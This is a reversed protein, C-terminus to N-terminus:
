PVPVRTLVPLRGDRTVEFLLGSREENSGGEAFVSRYTRWFQEDPNMLLLYDYGDLQRAFEEPSYPCTWLDRDNYKSGLTWCWANTMRPGLEYATLHFGFGNTAQWVIYTRAQPPLLGDVRAVVRQINDRFAATSAAVPDERPAAQVVAWAISFVLIMAGTVSRLRSGSAAQGLAAVIALAWALFWTGAYRGFAVVHAGEYAGFGNLYVYLLVVLYGACGVALMGHVIAHTPKAQPPQLFFTLVSLGLLLPFWQLASSPRLRDGPNSWAGSESIVGNGNRGVPALQLARGFNRVTLDHRRTRLSPMVLTRFGEATFKVDFTRNFELAAVRMSWSQHATLPAIVLLCPIAWALASRRRNDAEGQFRRVLGRRLADIVFVGAACMAPVLGIPKVLPLCFLVPVLAMRNRGGPDNGIAVAALAAGFLGGLLHDVEVTAYGLGLIAMMLLGLALVLVYMPACALRTWRALAIAISILALAQAFYTRGESFTSSVVFYQFLAAGPPYDKLIVGTTPGPLLGTRSISKSVRGWHSFEDWTGYAADRLGLWALAALGVFVVLSILIAARDDPPSARLKWVAITGLALGCVYLALTAPALWGGLAAAYLVTVVSACVTLYALEPRIRVVAQLWLVIGILAATSILPTL